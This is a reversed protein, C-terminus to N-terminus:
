LHLASSICLRTLQRCVTVFSLTTTPIQEIQKLTCPEFRNDSVTITKAADERETERETERERQRERQTERERERGRDRERGRETEGWGGEERKGGCEREREREASGM